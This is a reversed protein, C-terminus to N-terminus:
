SGAMPDSSRAPVFHYMQRIDRRYALPTLGSRRKFFRTFYAADNFGLEDGIRNVPLDTYLLRRKAEVVLHDQIHQTCTKGSQKKVLDNLHGASVHLLSAYAQVEHLDRYREAVLALLQRFVTQERMVRDQNFQEMYLRSLFILLNQLWASLMPMRWADDRKIEWLMQRMAHELYNVEEPILRLEHGGARNHLIPLNTRLLHEELQLFERTFALIWGQMPRPDEKLHVQHPVTFYLHDPQVTYSRADVWHRSDGKRVLAFLYYDKRHPILMGPDPQLVDGRMERIEIPQSLEYVAIM